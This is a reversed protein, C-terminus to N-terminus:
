KPQRLMGDSCIVFTFPTIFEGYLGAWSQRYGDFFVYRLSDCDRFAGAGIRAVSDSLYISEMATCGAFAEKGVANVSRPLYAAQLKACDAFARNGIIKLTDPLEVFVVESGSFCGEGLGLVTRGALTEPLQVMGDGAYARPSFYVLGNDDIQFWPLETAAMRNMPTTFFLILGLLLMGAIILIPIWHTCRAASNAEPLDETLCASEAQCPEPTDPVAEAKEESGASAVVYVPVNEPVPVAVGDTEPAAAVLRMGCMHCFRSGEACEAGCNSCTM